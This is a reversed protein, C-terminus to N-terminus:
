AATVALLVALRGAPMRYELLLAAADLPSLGISRGGVLTPPTIDCGACADDRVTAGAIMNSLEALASRALPAPPDAEGTMAAVVAEALGGEFGFVLRGRVRGTVGIIALRVQELSVDSEAAAIRPDGPELDPWNALVARVARDVPGCFAGNM